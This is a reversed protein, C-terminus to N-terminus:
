IQHHNCSRSAVQTKRHHLYPPLSADGCGGLLQRRSGRPDQLRSCFVRDIAPFSFNLARWFAPSGIQCHMHTRAALRSAARSIQVPRVRLCWADRIMDTATGAAGNDNSGLLVRADM